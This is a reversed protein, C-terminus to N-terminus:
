LSTCLQGRRHYLVGGERRWKGRGRERGGEGETEGERERERRRGIDGGGREGM